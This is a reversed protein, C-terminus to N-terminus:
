LLVTRDPLENRDGGDAPFTSAPWPASASWPQWREPRTTARGSRRRWRAPLYGGVGGAGGPGRLRSGGRDRHEAGRAARLGARRQERGHGVRAPRLVGRGGARHQERGPVPRRGAPGDRDCLPDGGPPRARVRRHGRRHRVAHRASLPAAPRLPTTTLNQLWRSLMSTVLPGVRRRRWLWRRRRRLRWRRGSAGALAAAM